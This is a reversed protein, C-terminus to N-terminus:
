KSINSRSSPSSSVLVGDRYIYKDSYPVADYTPVTPLCLPISVGNFTMLKEELKRLKGITEGLQEDSEGMKLTYWVAHQSNKAWAGFRVIVRYTEWKGCALSCGYYGRPGGWHEGHDVGISISHLKRLDDMAALIVRKEPSEEWM